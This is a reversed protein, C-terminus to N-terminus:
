YVMLMELIGDKAIFVYGTCRKGFHQLPLNLGSVALPISPNPMEPPDEQSVLM